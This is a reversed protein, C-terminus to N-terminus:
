SAGGSHRAPPLVGQVGGRLELVRRAHDYVLAQGSLQMAGQVLTVPLDSVIRQADVFFQLEEGRFEMPQDLPDRAPDAGAERVVRAGGVLRVLSGDGEAQAQRATAVTVRGNADTHRVRVEDIELRDTDPYHRLTRGELRLGPLGAGSYHQVSFRQMVYDPDSRPPRNEGPMEPVPTSRVLWYTLGALVAMLVVPLSATLRDLAQAWRSLRPRGAPAGVEIRGLGTRADTPGAGGM